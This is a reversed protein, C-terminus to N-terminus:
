DFSAVDIRTPEENTNHHNKGRSVATYCYTKIGKPGCHFNQLDTARTSGLWLTLQYGYSVIFLIKRCNSSLILFILFFRFTSNSVGSHSLVCLGSKTETIL